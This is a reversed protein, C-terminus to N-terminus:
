FLLENLFCNLEAKEIIAEWITNMELRPRHFLDVYGLMHTAEKLRRRKWHEKRDIIRVEDWLSLHNEEEKWIHDALGSKEIETRVVAKQHEQLRVKLPRCTKDKYVKGFSCPISYVCNKTMYEKPSKVRFHHKRLQAM